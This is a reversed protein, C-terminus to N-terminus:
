AGRLPTDDLAAGLEVLSDFVGVAGAARLEAAAFGGNRVAVM